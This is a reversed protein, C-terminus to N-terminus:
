RVPLLEMAVSPAAVILVVPLVARRTSTCRPQMVDVAPAVTVVDALPKNAVPAFEDIVAVPTLTAVDPEIAWAAATVPPAVSVM